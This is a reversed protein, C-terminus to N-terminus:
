PRLPPALPFVKKRIPVFSGFFPKRRRASRGQRVQRRSRLPRNPSLKFRSPALSAFPPAFNPQPPQDTGAGRLQEAFRYLKKKELVDALDFLEDAIRIALQWIKLDQFRFKVM